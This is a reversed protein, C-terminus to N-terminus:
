CSGLVGEDYTNEMGWAPRGHTAHVEEDFTLCWPQPPRYKHQRSSDRLVKKLQQRVQDMSWSESGPPIWPQMNELDGYHTKVQYASYGVRKRLSRRHTSRARAGLDLVVSDEAEEDFSYFYPKSPAPVCPMVAAKVVGAEVAVSGHTAVEEGEEAEEDYSPHFTELNFVPIEEDDSGSAYAQQAISNDDIFKLIKQYRDVDECDTDLQWTQSNTEIGGEIHSVRPRLSVRSVGLRAAKNALPHGLCALRGSTSPANSISRCTRDGCRALEM